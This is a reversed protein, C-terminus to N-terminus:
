GSPAGLSWGPSLKLMLVPSLLPIYNHIFLVLDMLGHPSQFIFYVVSSILSCQYFKKVHPHWDIFM